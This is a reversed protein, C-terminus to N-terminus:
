KRFPWTVATESRFGGHPPKMLSVVAQIWFENLYGNPTRSIEVYLPKELRFRRAHNRNYFCAHFVGPALLRDEGIDLSWEGLAREPEPEPTVTM